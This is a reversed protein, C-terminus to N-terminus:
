LRTRSFLSWRGVAPSPGDCLGAGFPRGLKAWRKLAPFSGFVDRLDRLSPGCDGTEVTSWWCCGSEAGAGGQLAPM